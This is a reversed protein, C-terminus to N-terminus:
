RVASWDVPWADVLVGGADYRGAPVGQPNDPGCIRNGDDVCSWGPQDEMITPQDAPALPAFAIATAILTTLM